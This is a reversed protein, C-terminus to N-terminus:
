YGRSERLCDSYYSRRQGASMSDLLEEACKEEVQKQEASTLYIKDGIDYAVKTMDNDWYIASVIAEERCHFFEGEQEVNVTIPIDDCNPRNIHTSITMKGM